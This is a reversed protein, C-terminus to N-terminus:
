PKSVGSHCYDIGRSTPPGITSSITVLKLVVVRQPNRIPRRRNPGKGSSPVIIGEPLVSVRTLVRTIGIDPVTVKITQLPINGNPDFPMTFRSTEVIAHSLAGLITSTTQACLTGTSTSGPELHIDM